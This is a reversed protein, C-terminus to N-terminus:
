KQAIYEDFTINKEYIYKATDIGVYRYHWGEFQYGTINEKDKPYRLIFGYKYANKILWYYEDTTNFKDNALNIDVSLGTEHESYGPRASYKDAAEKGDEKVYKNYLTIQIEHSRYASKAFLRLGQKEGDKCLELFKEAAEKRLTWTGYSYHEPLTVLDSPAYGEPLYNYKNVIVDLSNPDEVEKVNTYPESDIGINVYTVIDKITMNKNKSSYKLYRDLNEEKFYSLKVYKALDANYENNLIVNIDKNLYKYFTNVDSYKYGKDLLSTISKYEKNYKDNYYESKKAIEFTKNYNKIDEKNDKLFLNYTILSIIFCIIIGIIIKISKKIKYKKKKKKVVIVM